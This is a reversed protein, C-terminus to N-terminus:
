RDASETLDATLPGLTAAAHSTFTLQDWDFTNVEGELRVSRVDQLNDACSGLAKWVSARALTSGGVAQDFERVFEEHPNCRLEINGDHTVAVIRYRPPRSAAYDAPSAYTGSYMPYYSFMPAREIRLTSFLVQQGLVFVIMAFQAGLAVRSRPDPIPPRPDPIWSGLEKSIQQWPLYGLLLIWWGPWFHGMFVWFGGLLGVGALGMVARYRESRIFAATIMLAETAVAFLSAAIALRPYSALQLGWDFPAIGSDTIFHYKVTGNLIWAPGHALKAWAAAAYGVGFVLGPVWVSYGYHRGRALVPTNARRWRDISYADGWRSPLLAVVALVFAANPHTSDLSIRVFAWVLVGAVFLAYTTRTFLGITFAAGTVLLWPTLGNVIAPHARLWDLVAAHFPGEIELDFTANLWSADVARSMFFALLLVGFIIRFIGATEADIEPIGRQLFRFIPGITTRSADRLPPAISRKVIPLALIALGLVLLAVAFLDAARVMAPGADGFQQRRDTRTAGPSISYTSRDLDHTDAVLTEGILAQINQPRPDTLDYRWTTADLREGDALRFRDELTGRAAEDVSPQWRVHIEAGRPGAVLRGAVPLCVAVVALWVALGSPVLRRFLSSRTVRAFKLMAPEASLDTAEPRPDILDYRWTQGDLPEPDQLRFQSELRQRAAQDISSQWRVHV